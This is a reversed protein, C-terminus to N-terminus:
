NSFLIVPFTRFYDFKIQKREGGGGESVRIILCDLGFILVPLAPMLHHSCHAGALTLVEASPGNNFM